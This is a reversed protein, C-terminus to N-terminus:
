PPPPSVVASPRNKTLTEEGDLYGHQIMLAQAREKVEEGWNELIEEQQRALRTTKATARFELLAGSFSPAIWILAMSLAAAGYMVLWSYPDSLVALVTEMSDAGRWVRIFFPTVGALNFTGVAFGRARGYTRDTIFAAWTPALGFVLLLLTPLAFVIMVLGVSLVGVLVTGASLPASQKPRPKIAM